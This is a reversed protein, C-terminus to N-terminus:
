LQQQQPCGQLNGALYLSLQLGLAALTTKLRSLLDTVSNCSM